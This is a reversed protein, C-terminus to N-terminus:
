PRELLATLKAIARAYLKRSAETSRGLIRGIEGFEKGEFLRLQLARRDDGPLQALADALAQQEENALAEMSPTPGDSPIADLPNKGSRDDAGSLERRVDRSQTTLNEVLNLYQRRRIRLLWSFFSAATEGRFQEFRTWAQFLTIQWLESEGSKGRDSPEVM